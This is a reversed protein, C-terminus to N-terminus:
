LTRNVEPEEEVQQSATNWAIVSPSDATLNDHVYGQNIDGLDPAMDEDLAFDIDDAEPLTHLVSGSGTSQIV